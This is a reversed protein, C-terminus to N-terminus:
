RGWSYLQPAGFFRVNSIKYHISISFGKAGGRPSVSMHAQQSKQIFNSESCSRNSAKKSTIRIKRLMSGWLSDLNGNKYTILNRIYQDKSSGLEVRPPSLCIRESVKQIFNLESCSKNSAKKSASRIKPMASGWLSDLKGNRYM